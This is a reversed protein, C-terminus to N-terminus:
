NRTAVLNLAGDPNKHFDAEVVVNDGGDLDFTLVVTHKGPPLKEPIGLKFDAETQPPIYLKNVEGRDEVLGDDSLIFFVGQPFLVVNGQNHFVGQLTGEQLLLDKVSATKDKETSELFFLTGIRTVFNMGIRAQEVNTNMEFFLVGDCGSKFSEPVKISYKVEQEGFPPLTLANPAFTVMDSCSYDSTGSPMFEKNGKDFPPRYIFDQWYLKVGLPKNTSNIVELSDVVGSGPAIEHTIVSKQIILQASVRGPMGLLVVFFFLIIHIFRHM